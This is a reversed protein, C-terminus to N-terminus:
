MVALCNLQSLLCYVIQCFLQWIKLQGRYWCYFIYLYKTTYTIAKVINVVNESRFLNWSFNERIWKSFLFIKVVCSYKLKCSFM